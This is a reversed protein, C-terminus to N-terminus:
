GAHAPQRKWVRKQIWRGLSLDPHQRDIASVGVALAPTWKISM